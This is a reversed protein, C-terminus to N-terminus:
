DYFFGLILLTLVFVASSLAIGIWTQVIRLAWKPDEEPPRLPYEDLEAEWSPSSAAAPTQAAQEKTEEPKEESPQKAPSTTTPEASDTSKKAGAHEPHAESSADETDQPHESARKPPTKSTKKEPSDTDATM